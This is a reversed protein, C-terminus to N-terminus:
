SPICSCPKVRSILNGAPLSAAPIYIVRNTVPSPMLWSFSTTPLILYFSLLCFDPDFWFTFNLIYFTKRSALLRTILLLASVARAPWRKKNHTLDKKPWLIWLPSYVFNVFYYQWSRLTNETNKAGKATRPSWQSVHSYSWCKWIIWNACQITTRQTGSWEEIKKKRLKKEQFFFNCFILPQRISRLAALGRM